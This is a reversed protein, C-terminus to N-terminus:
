IWRRVIQPATIQYDGGFPNRSISSQMYRCGTTYLWVHCSSYSWHHLSFFIAQPWLDFAISSLRFLRDGGCRIHTITDWAHWVLFVVADEWKTGYFRPFYATSKNANLKSVASTCILWWSLIHRTAPDEFKWLLRNEDQTQLSFNWSLGNQFHGPLHSM